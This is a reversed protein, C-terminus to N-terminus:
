RIRDVFNLKGQRTMHCNAILDHNNDVDGGLLQNENISHISFHAYNWELIDGIEPSANLEILSNRHFAFTVPQQADPGFENTQYTIDDSSILCPITIGAQFVKGKGGEAEGYVNTKIESVEHKYLVCTQGVVNKLVEKNARDILNSIDRNSLFRGAM